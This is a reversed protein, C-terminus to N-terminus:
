HGGPPGGLHDPRRRDSGQGSARRKSSRPHLDKAFQWIDQLVSEPLRTRSYTGMRMPSTPNEEMMKRHTPMANTHDYVMAKFWEFDANIGGADARPNNLTAGHCQGCGVAALAAVQGRPANAPTEVRWPGPNAVPPLTNFYAILDAVEKESIQSDVYAPMIGWPKRLAQRFQPLSLKRGALDPGFGGEGNQGHCNRCMTTNGEWLAKGAQVDGTQAAAGQAFLFLLLAVLLANM